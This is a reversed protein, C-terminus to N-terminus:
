NQPATTNRGEVLSIWFRTNDIGRQVDPSPILSGLESLIAKHFPLASGQSEAYGCHALVSLGYVHNLRDDDKRSDPTLKVRWRSTQDSIVAGQYGAKYFVTTQSRESLLPNFNLSTPLLTYAGVGNTMAADTKFCLHRSRLIQNQVAQWRSVIYVDALPTGDTSDVVYGTGLQLEIAAIGIVLAIVYLIGRESQETMM